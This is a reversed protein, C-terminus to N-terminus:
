LGKGKAPLTKSKVKTKKVKAKKTKTAKPKPAKPKYHKEKYVKAKKIAAESQTEPLSLVKDLNDEPSNLPEGYDYSMETPLSKGAEPFLCYLCVGEDLDFEEISYQGHCKECSCKIGKQLKWKPIMRYVENFVGHEEYEDEVEVYVNVCM